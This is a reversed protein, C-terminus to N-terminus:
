HGSHCQGQYLCQITPTVYPRQWHGTEHLTHKTSGKRALDVEGCVVIRNAILTEVIEKPTKESKSTIISSVDIATSCGPRMALISSLVTSKGTGGPGYLILFHSSSPPDLLSNGVVWKLTMYERENPFLPRLYHDVSCHPDHEWRNVTIRTKVPMICLTSMDENSEQPLSVVGSAKSFEIVGGRVNIAKRSRGVCVSPPITCVDNAM